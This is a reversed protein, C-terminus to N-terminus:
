REWCLLTLPPTEPLWSEWRVRCFGTGQVGGSASCPLGAFVSNLTEYYIWFIWTLQFDSMMGLRQSIEYQIWFFILIYWCWSSQCTLIIHCSKLAALLLICWHAIYTCALFLSGVGFYIFLYFLPDFPIQQVVFYLCWLLTSLLSSLLCCSCSRPLLWLSSSLIMSIVCDSCCFLSECWILFIFVCGGHLSFINEFWVGLLLSFSSHTLFEWFEVRYFILLGILFHVFSM